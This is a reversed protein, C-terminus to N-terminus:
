IPTRQGNRNTITILIHNIESRLSTLPQPPLSARLQRRKTVIKVYYRRMSVCTTLMVPLVGSLAHTTYSRRVRPRAGNQDYQQEHSVNDQGPIRPNSATASSFRPIPLQPDGDRSPMALLTFKRQTIFDLQYRPHRRHIDETGDRAAKKIAEQPM